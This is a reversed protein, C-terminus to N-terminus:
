TTILVQLYDGSAVKLETSGDEDANNLLAAPTAVAGVKGTGRVYEIIYSIKSTVSGASQALNISLQSSIDTGPLVELVIPTNEHAVITARIIDQSPVDSFALVDGTSISGAPVFGYSVQLKEYRSSKLGAVDNTDVAIKKIKKTAM